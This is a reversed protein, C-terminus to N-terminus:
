LTDYVERLFKYFDDYHRKNWLIDCTPNGQYMLLPMRWYVNGEHILPLLELANSGCQCVDFCVDPHAVINLLTKTGTSLCEKNLAGLAENRSIFTFPSNYKAKEITWLVFSTFESDDLLTAGFFDDNGKIYRTPIDDINTYIKLSM